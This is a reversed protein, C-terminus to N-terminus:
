IGVHIFPAWWYPHDDDANELAPNPPVDRTTRRRGCAATTATPVGLDAFAASRAAGDMARLDRQALALAEAVTDHAAIRAAFRDMFVCTSTDDVPWLSVVANRAGAALLGRVLGVLDGGLTTDGRGTDCASLVVLDADVELGMLHAVTLEDAGALAVSSLTPAEASVQGHTALHIVGAGAVARSVREETPDNDLLASTGYRAAVRTAEVRTGPLHRLGRGPAYSPAGVVLAGRALDPRSHGTVHRLVSAAPLVSVVHRSGLLDPGFPLCHFPVLHLPGSPVVIIREHDRLIASVPDLLLESLRDADQTGATPRLRACGSHFRRVVGSIDPIEARVERVLAHRRTVAWILSRDWGVLYEVLVTDDPLLPQLDELRLPARPRRQRVLHGPVLQELDREASELASQARDLRRRAPMVRGPVGEHGAAALLDYAGTWAAGAGSWRRLAASQEPTHQSRAILDELLADLALSRLRDTLMFADETRGAQRAVDAGLTYLERAQADDTISVRFADRPFRAVREEFAARARELVDAAGDIDDVAALVRGWDTLDRWGAAPRTTRLSAVVPAADEYSRAQTWLNLQHAPDADPTDALLERVVARAEDYREAAQLVLVLLSRGAAGQARARKLAVDMLRDAEADEGDHQHQRARFLPVLVDGMTLFDTLADLTLALAEPEFGPDQATGPVPVFQHEGLVTLARQRPGLRQVLDEDTARVTLGAPARDTLLRVVDLARELGDPDGESLQVNFLAAALYSVELWALPEMAEDASSGTVQPLREALATQYSAIAPGTSNMGGYLEGVDSLVTRLAFANSLRTSLDVALTLACRARETDDARWWAHGCAHVLRALGSGFSASGPGCAWHEISEAVAATAASLRGASISAMAAHVNALHMAATDGARQSFLGALQTLREAREASGSLFALCGEGLYTAAIGRDANARRFLQRAERYLRRAEAASEATPVTRETDLDALDFALTETFTVPATRWEAELLWCRATGALDDLEAFVEQAWALSREAESWSGALRHLDALEAALTAAVVVDQEAAIRLAGQLSGTLHQLIESSQEPRIRMMSRIISRLSLLEPQVKSIITLLLDARINGTEPATPEQLEPMATALQAGTDGPWWNLDLMVATHGLAAGEPSARTGPDASELISSARRPEGAIIAALAAM